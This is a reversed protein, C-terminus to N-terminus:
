KPFAARNAGSWYAKSIEWPLSVPSFADKPRICTLFWVLVSLLLAVLGDSALESASETDLKTSGQFGRDGRLGQEHIPSSGVVDFM